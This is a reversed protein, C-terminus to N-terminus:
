TMALASKNKARLLRRVVYSQKTASLVSRAVSAGARVSAKAPLALSQLHSMTLLIM